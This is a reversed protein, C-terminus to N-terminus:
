STKAQMRQSQSMCICTVFPYHLNHLIDFRIHEDYILIEDDQHLLLGLQNAQYVEENLPEHIIFIIQNM